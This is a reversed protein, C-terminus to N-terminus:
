NDRDSDMHERMCVQRDRHIQAFTSDPKSAPAEKPHLLGATFLSCVIAARSVRINEDPRSAPPRADIAATPPGGPCLGFVLVCYPRHRGAPDVFGPLLNNEALLWAAMMRYRSASFGEQQHSLPGYRSGPHCALPTDGYRTCHYLPMQNPMQHPMRVPMRLAPQPASPNHMFPHSTNVQLVSAALEKSM